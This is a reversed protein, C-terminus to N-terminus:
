QKKFYNILILTTTVTSTITTIISLIQSYDQIALIYKQSRLPEVYVIDNPFLYFDETGIISRKNVNIRFLKYGTETQRLIMIRRKDAYDTLGGISAIAQLINVNEQYFTTITNVDGIFYVKFSILKVKIIADILLEDVRDSILKDVESVTKGKVNFDGLLPVKIYGTDTIIIGTFYSDSANQSLSNYSSSVNEAFLKNVEQNTTTVKLYLVDYSQLKYEPPQNSFETQDEHKFEKKDQIYRMGRRTCSTFMIITIIFFLYKKMIKKKAFSIFFM